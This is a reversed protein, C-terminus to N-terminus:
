RRKGAAAQIKMVLDSVRIGALYERSKNELGEAVECLLSGMACSVACSQKAPKGPLGLLRKDTSAEYIDRLSIESAARGLELGGSKGRFSKVLGKEVLKAVLRRVVIPNTRISEALEPSTLKGDKAVALSTVIHVSVAFRTDVM